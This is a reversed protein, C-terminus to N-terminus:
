KKVELEKKFVELLENTKAQRVKYNHADGVTSTLKGINILDSIADINMADAYKSLNRSNWYWIAAILSNAEDLLLDPNGIFDIGTELSLKRLNKGGTIQFIGRGRNRYGDGSSESGNGM